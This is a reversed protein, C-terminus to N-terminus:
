APLVKRTRGIEWAGAGASLLMSVALGGVLWPTYGVGLLASVGMAVASLTLLRLLSILRFNAPFRGWTLEAGSVNLAGLLIGIVGALGAEWRNLAVAMVMTIAATTACAAATKRFM